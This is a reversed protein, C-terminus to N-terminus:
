VMDLRVVKGRGRQAQSVDGAVGLEVWAGTSSNEPQVLWFVEAREVGRLDALAARSRVGPDDPSGTGANRVDVTWDYTVEHGAERVSRMHQEAEELPNSSTAVYVQLKPM